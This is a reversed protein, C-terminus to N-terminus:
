IASDTSSAYRNRVSARVSSVAVACLRFPQDHSTSCQSCHESSRRGPKRQASRGPKRTDQKCANYTGYEQLM